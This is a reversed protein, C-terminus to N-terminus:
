LVPLQEHEHIIRAWGLKGRFDAGPLELLCPSGVTGYGGHTFSICPCGM